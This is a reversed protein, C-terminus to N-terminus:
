GTLSAESRSRQEMYWQITQHLGERLAVRPTFGLQERAKTLDGHRRRQGVPRSADFVLRPTRGSFELIMRALEAITVEEDTGLNVPDGVPYRELALLLGEVLDSVYLFSRTQTGDGWVVVPDSGDMVKRILAPIVHSTQWAFDDRPGFTNYPRVIAVKMGFERQYASAQVELFRKAWGYGFNTPEPDDLFGESEPTPIACGARYVCASSMCLVREVRARAAAAMVQLGLVANETLMTAPRSTNYAVGAVRAALHCVVEIGASAAAAFTSDMLDGELFEVERARELLAAEFRRRSRGVARVRAGCDVLAEVLHSGIFGAAGTVLVAKGRWFTTSVGGARRDIAM